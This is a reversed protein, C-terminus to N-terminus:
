AECTSKSQVPFSYSFLPTPDPWLFWDLGQMRLNVMTSMDPALHEEGARIQAMNFLWSWLVAMKSYHGIVPFYLEIISLAKYLYTSSYRHYQCSSIPTIPSLREQWNLLIGSLEFLNVLKEESSIYIFHSAISWLKVFLLSSYMCINCNQTLCLILSKSLKRSRTTSQTLSESIVQSASMSCYSM